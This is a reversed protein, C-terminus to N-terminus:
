IGNLQTQKVITYCRANLKTIIKRAFGLLFSFEGVATGDTADAADGAYCEKVLIIVWRGFSYIKNDM